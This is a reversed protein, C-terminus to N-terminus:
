MFSEMDGFLDKVFGAREMNSLLRRQAPVSVLTNAASMGSAAAAPLGLGPLTSDGCHLLGPLPIHKPGPFTQQGAKWGPGYSGRFRRCFFEHTLPSAVLETEVRQRVDPIIRELARWLHEAREDKLRKYEPSGRKLGEWLAYPENGATYIHVLHKGPPALSPDLVTPISVIFMNMVDDIPKSWDEIVSYHIDLNDLGTADIGLHLHMFSGTDPTAEAEELFAKPVAREPLLRLTDWVSANSIVARRARVTSGDRLRVGVARGNEVLVQEVHAKLMVRGGDHKEVGRVLADIM